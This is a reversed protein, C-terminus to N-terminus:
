LAAIKKALESAKAADMILAASKEVREALAKVHDSTLNTLEVKLHASCQRALFSETAPGLYAKSVAVVKDSVASM